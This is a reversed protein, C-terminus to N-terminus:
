LHDLFSSLSVKRGQCIYALARGSLLHLPSLPSLPPSLLSLHPLSPPLCPPLSDADAIHWVEHVYPGKM